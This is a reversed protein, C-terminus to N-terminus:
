AGLVQRLFPGDFVGDPDLEKRLSLFEQWRPYLPALDEAAHHLEKGWHPRATGVEEWFARFYRARDPGDTAYAGVQCTDRGEAPSLWGDDGRVFRVELPFNASIRDRQVRRVVRDVLEGAEALPVAAETERHVVPMPTNLMLSSQGVLGSPGLYFGSHRENLTPVVDPRRHQLRVMAPFVWRHLVREDLARLQAASPRTSAADTTREYRVIQATSAQPLWWAKVWEASRAVDELRRGLGHVDVHEITQRLRFAPVVRLTVETVVGLAGLHVRAGALRPDEEALEVVEGRGDVLRMGTVLTALNGHVLSSGHTGTAIAGAVSQAQISGVVPLTLGRALLAASLDRLRTGARVRVHDAGLEVVGAVEDLSMARDDPLAASSFSHGAGVVRLRRGAYRAARVASRVDAETQPRVWGSPVASEVGSWSRFAPLASVVM